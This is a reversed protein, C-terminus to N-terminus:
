ETNLSAFKNESKQTPNTSDVLMTVLHNFNIFRIHLTSEVLYVKSKNLAQM